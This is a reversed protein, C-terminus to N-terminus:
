KVLTFECHTDYYEGGDIPHPGPKEVQTMVLKAILTPIATGSVPSPRYVAQLTTIIVSSNNFPYSSDETVLNHLFQNNATMKSFENPCKHIIETITHLTANDFSWVNPAAFGATTITSICLFLIFAKM